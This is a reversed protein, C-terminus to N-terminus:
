CLLRFARFAIMMGGEIMSQERASCLASNGESTMSKAYQGILSKQCSVTKNNSTVGFYGTLPRATPSFTGAIYYQINLAKSFSLM